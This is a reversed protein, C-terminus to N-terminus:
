NIDYYRLRYTRTDLLIVQKIYTKEVATLGNEGLATALGNEMDLMTM